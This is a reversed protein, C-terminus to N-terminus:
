TKESNLEVRISPLTDLEAQLAAKVSALQRGNIGRRLSAEYMNIATNLTTRAQSSLTKPTTAM